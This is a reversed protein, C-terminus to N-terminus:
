QRGATRLDHGPPALDPNPGGPASADGAASVTLEGLASIFEDAFRAAAAASVLRRNYRVSVQLRGGATITAVSLGRPMQATGSFAMTAEASGGFDPPDAVRGLNTLMVTDCFAPGVTRLAARLLWRKVLTPCWLGAVARFEPREQTHVPMRARRTQGAVDPLLAAAPDGAAPPLACIRALRSLNGATQQGPARANVPVSIRVQRAPKRHSANWRGVTVILATVLVDNLTPRDAPGAAAAVSPM